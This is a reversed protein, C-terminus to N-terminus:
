PLDHFLRVLFTSTKADPEKRIYDPDLPPYDGDFEIAPAFYYYTGDGGPTGTWYIDSPNGDEDNDNLPLYLDIGSVGDIDWMVAGTGGEVGYTDGCVGPYGPDCFATLEDVTPLRWGSWAACAADYTKKEGFCDSGNVSVAGVNMTAVIVKGLTGGLDVVIGDHGDITVKDGHSYPAAFTGLVFSTSTIASRTIKLTKDSKLTRKFTKGDTDTLTISVGTYGTTNEPLAIYFDTDTSENLTVGSGCDLSISKGTGTIVAADSTVTFTGSIAENTTLTITKIIATGKLSLKLLGCLNKFSIQDAIGGSVEVSAHMPSNSIGGYTQVAPLSTGDTGYWADYTGDTTPLIGSFEGDSTGAGNSLTFTEGNLVFCDGTSWVVKAGDFETKTSGEETSAYIVSINNNENTNVAPANEKECSSLGSMAALAMLTYAYKRM